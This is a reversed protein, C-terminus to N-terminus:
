NAQKAQRKTKGDQAPKLGSGAPGNHLDTLPLPGLVEADDELIVYFIADGFGSLFNGGPLRLFTFVGVRLALRGATAAAGGLRPLRRALMTVGGLHGASASTATFFVVALVGLGVRGGVLVRIQLM